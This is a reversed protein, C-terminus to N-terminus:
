IHDLVTTSTNGSLQGLAPVVIHPPTVVV